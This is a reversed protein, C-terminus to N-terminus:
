LLLRGLIKFNYEVSSTVLPLHHTETHPKEVGWRALERVWSSVTKLRQATQDRWPELLCSCIHIQLCGSDRRPWAPGALVHGEEVLVGPLCFASLHAPPCVCWCCVLVFGWAPPSPIHQPHETVSCWHQVTTNTSRHGYPSIEGPSHLPM